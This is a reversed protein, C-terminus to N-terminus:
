KQNTKDADTEGRREFYSFISRLTVFSLGFGVPLALYALPTILWIPPNIWKIFFVYIAIYVATVALGLFILIANVIAEM